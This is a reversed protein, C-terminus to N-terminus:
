QQLREKVLRAIISGDGAPGTKQKVAGIIQGMQQASVESMSNFVEDVITKLENESLQKPLYAEIVAKEKLEAASKEQNGGQAFLNASEQRKKAEKIFLTTIQDDSLGQERSGLEIESNLIVSKLGRLTTVLIKDGSLMATKLDQDITQKLSM